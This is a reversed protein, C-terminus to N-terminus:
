NDISGKAPDSRCPALNLIILQEETVMGIFSQDSAFNQGHYGLYQSLYFV